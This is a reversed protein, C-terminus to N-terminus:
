FIEEAGQLKKLEWKLELIREREKRLDRQLNYIYKNLRNQTKQMTQYQNDSMETNRRAISAVLGWDLKPDSNFIPKKITKIGKGKVEMLGCEKPIEQIEVLGEPVVFYFENSFAIAQARKDPNNIENLFDQRSVKVEFSIITHGKSPYCNIAWGDFRQEPNRGKRKFSRYGTGARLESFFAWEPPAYRERLVEVIDKAKITSVEYRCGM